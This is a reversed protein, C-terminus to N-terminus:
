APTGGALVRPPASSRRIRLEFPLMVSAGTPEHDGAVQDLLLSAAQRGIEYAPQAACTLFPESVWEEPLDDFAVVSMDDPVRLGAERLARIAGFAIFNNACVVATPRAGPAELMEQAMRHGDAQNSKGFLFGGWHVLEDPLELGAEALARRCGAVRDVSTSVNRRGTLVAIRRHGLDILHTALAHAGAESDCRVSDVNRGAIRRDLVVVPMHHDHLLRFSDGSSRAPVLLVGDVQREILMLLYQEEEAESEDTNCYMVSFGHGVAVDEVGRAITTFFPNSIDAVVLAITKTRKSRLQRALANPVYGLEDIAAEVRARTEASTYGTGNVVRSVTMASVGARKAVDSITSM